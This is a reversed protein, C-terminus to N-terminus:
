PIELFNVDTELTRIKEIKENDTNTWEVDSGMPLWDHIYRYGFQKPCYIGRNDAIAKKVPTQLDHIMWCDFTNRRHIATEWYPMDDTESEHDIDEMEFAQLLLWAAGKPSIILSEDYGIMGKQLYENVYAKPSDFLEPNEYQSTIFRKYDLRWREALTEDFLEFDRDMLELYSDVNDVLDPYVKCIRENSPNLDYADGIRIRLQFLYFEEEKNQLEEVIKDIWPFPLTLIRDDWTVLCTQTGMAIHRLIRSFDWVQGVGSASQGIDGSKIGKAFQHTYPFGDAEAANAIRKMDDNYDETEHAKIFHIKEKPTQMAVSGGMVAWQRDKSRELTLIVHKDIGM